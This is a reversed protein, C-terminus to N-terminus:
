APVELSMQEQKADYAKCRAEKKAPTDGLCCGHLAHHTAQCVTCADPADPSEVWRRARRFEYKGCDCRCLWLGGSKGNSAGHYRFATLFGRKFGSYDRANDPKESLPLPPFDFTEHHAPKRKPEWADSEGFSVRSAVRDVPTAHLAFNPFSM